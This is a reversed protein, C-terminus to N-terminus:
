ASIGNTAHAKHESPHQPLVVHPAQEGWRLVRKHDPTYYLWACYETSVRFALDPATDQLHGMTANPKSLIMPCAAQLADSFSDFPGFGKMPGPIGGTPEKGPEPRWVGPVPKSSSCALAALLPILYWQKM